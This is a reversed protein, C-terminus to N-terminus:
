LVAFRQMVRALHKVARSFDELRVHENPGHANNQHYGVGPAVVPVGQRTFLYKPTTGGNLPILRTPRGYVEEGAAATLRVLPDDPDTLGPAEAGLVTIEVDTFGGADLYARLLTQIEEPDQDPVLRFDIKASARAPVITKSGPGQYGSTIGAINCTPDFPARPVQVGTRGLLLHALGYTEKISAEQSPLAALLEEQRATPLMVRDYFGPILVREDQGKLGALAWTLRWAANPLLNAGGSHADYPLTRVSLEVYLLGRAGLSLMSHGEADINGEEWIAGDVRLQDAHREVWAPLHPSGIEEEGEVLFTIPCPYKGHVARLADLAALRAMFDGKDDKAGRAFLKGERLEPAFPPSEWLELPEPPQVDYHNYCLLTRTATQGDAHALVIPHGGDTPSVEARFGRNRLLEAVIEACEDIGEGRASVSPQRCLQTLEAIWGDIHTDIYADVRADGDEMIM